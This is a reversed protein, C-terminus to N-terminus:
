SSQFTRQQLLHCPIKRFTSRAISELGLSYNPGLWIQHMRCIDAATFRHNRDYLGAFEELASKSEDKPAIWKVSAPSMFCIKSCVVGLGLSSNIRMSTLLITAIKKQAYGDFWNAQVKGASTM